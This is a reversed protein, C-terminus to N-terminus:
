LHSVKLFAQPLHDIIDSATMGIEGKDAKAFDGALGHIYVGIMATELPTYSQALLSTLIGTLSDGSGGKAMGPNGNSNFYCHGDPTSICTHAGKLIVYVQNIQSFEIQLRNREFDNEAKQTLREFEKIHPTLISHKPILAVWDKHLSLINLADADLVVPRVASRLLKELVLGTEDATGIGPGIGIANYCDSYHSETICRTNLDSIVMAEPVTSQLILYGCGPVQVTLLGVGSRLSSKATLVAAGMKGETGSIILAHGFNGKHAFKRRPKILSRIFTETLFYNKAPEKKIFDPHLGIDLIVFEGVYSENEPFFFAAKPFQFCLTFTPKVICSEPDSHQDAFLGSAIDISIIPAKSLNIKEIVKALMGDTPKSLGTGILADIIVDKQEILPINEETFINAIKYIALEKLALENSLFDNSCKESYRVIYVNVTYGEELLLRAIALGDGGNNGLGCFVHIVFPKFPKNRIWGSCATAAREMLDVSKIPEHDITYRDAEHIQDVSFIKDATM